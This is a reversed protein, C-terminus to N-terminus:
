HGVIGTGNGLGTPHEVRGHRMRGPDPVVPQAAAVVKGDVPLCAVPDGLHQRDDDGLGAGVPGEQSARDLIQGALLADALEQIDAAHQRGGVIGM